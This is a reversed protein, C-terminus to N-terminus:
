RAVPYYKAANLHSVIAPIAEASTHVGHAQHRGAYAASLLQHGLLGNRVTVVGDAMTRSQVGM